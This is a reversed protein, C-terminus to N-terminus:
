GGMVPNEEANVVSVVSVFYSGVESVVKSMSDRSRESVQEGLM